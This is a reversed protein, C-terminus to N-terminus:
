KKDKIDNWNNLDNLIVQKIFILFSILKSLWSKSNIDSNSNNNTTFLNVVKKKIKKM